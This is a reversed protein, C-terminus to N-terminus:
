SLAEKKETLLAKYEEKEADSLDKYISMLQAVTKAKNIEETIDIVEIIKEEAPSDMAEEYLVLGSLCDAFVDRLAFGRSRMQLMRKPYQSWPGKKGWLGAVEADKQSFLRVQKESKKRWVTCRATMTSEDFEEIIGGFVPSGQVLALMADGWISARGNIVAINQLSQMAKLGVEQGKLVAAVVDGPKGQYISPIFSSQSIMSAFEMLQTMNQPQMSIKSIEKSM